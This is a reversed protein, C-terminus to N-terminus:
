FFRGDAAHQPVKMQGHHTSEAYLTPITQLGFASGTAFAHAEEVKGTEFRIGKTLLWGAGEAAKLRYTGAAFKAKQRFFGPCNARNAVEAGV